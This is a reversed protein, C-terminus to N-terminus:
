YLLFLVQKLSKGDDAKAFTWQRGLVTGDDRLEEKQYVLFDVVTLKRPKEREPVVLGLRHRSCQQVGDIFVFIALGSAIYGVSTLHIAFQRPKSLNFPIPIYTEVVGDGYVTCYEQYKRRTM